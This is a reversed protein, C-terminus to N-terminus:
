TAGERCSELHEAVDRFDAYRKGGDLYTKVPFTGAGVQNYITNKAIGLAKALQDMNLRAGYKDFVFAELVLSMETTGKTKECEKSCEQSQPLGHVIHRARERKEDHSAQSARM